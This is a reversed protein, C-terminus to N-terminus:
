QIFSNLSYQTFALGLQRKVTRNPKRVCTQDRVGPLRRVTRRVVDVGVGRGDTELMGEVGVGAGFHEVRFSEFRVEHTNAQTQKSKSSAFSAEQATVLTPREFLSRM